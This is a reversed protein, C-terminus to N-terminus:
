RDFDTNRVGSGQGGLALTIIGATLLGSVVFLLASAAVWDPPYLPFVLFNGLSVALLALVAGVLTRPSPRLLVLAAAWTFSLAIVFQPSFIRNTLTFIAVSCLGLAAWQARTRAWGVALALPLLTLGIQAVTILGNSVLITPPEGWPRTPLAHAPDLLAYQVLFWASEGILNRSTQYQYPHWFKVADGLYFPVLTVALLGGAAALTTGAAGWARRRAYYGVVFPLLLGPLWKLLAGVALALGSAIASQPIRRASDNPPTADQAPDTNHPLAVFAWVGLILFFTPVIDYRVPVLRFVYPVLTVATTLFAAARNAGRARGLALLLAASGLTFALLILPFFWRFTTANDGTLLVSGGFLGLAGQPYEMLPYRGDGFLPNDCPPTATPPWGLLQRGYCFYLGTDGDLGSGFLMGGKSTWTTQIWINLLYPVAVLGLLPRTSTPWVAEPTGRTAWWGGLLVLANAVGLAIYWGPQALRPLYTLLGHALANGVGLVLWSGLLGYIRTRDNLM